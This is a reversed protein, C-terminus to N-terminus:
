DNLEPIGGDLSSRTPQTTTKASLRDEMPSTRDTRRTAPRTKAQDAAAKAKAALAAAAAERKAQRRRDEEERQIQRMRERPYLTGYKFCLPLFTLSTLLIVVLHAALAIPITRSLTSRSVERM